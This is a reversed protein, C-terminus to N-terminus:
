NSVYVTNWIALIKSVIYYSYNITNKLYLSTYPRDSGIMLILSELIHEFWAVVLPLLITHLM